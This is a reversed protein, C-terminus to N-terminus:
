AEYNMKIHYVEKGTYCMFFKITKDMILLSFDGTKNEGLRKRMSRVDNITMSDIQM